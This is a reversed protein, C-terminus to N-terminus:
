IPQFSMHFNKDTLLVDQYIKKVSSIYLDPRKMVHEVDTM